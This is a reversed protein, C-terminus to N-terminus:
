HRAIRAHLRLWLNRIGLGALSAEIVNGSRIGRPVPVRIIEREIVHGHAGCARCPLGWDLGTGACWSCSRVIPIEFPVVVGREAEEPNLILEFDLPEAHEPEPEDAATLGWPLRELWAEFSPGPSVPEGTLPEPQRLTEWSASEAIPRRGQERDYRARREPDSLVEYAEALEQFAETGASGVHDPHYRKAQERFASRILAPPADWPVGLVVYYNRGVM